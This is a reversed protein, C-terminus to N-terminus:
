FKRRYVYLQSDPSCNLGDSTNGVLTFMDQYPLFQVGGELYAPQIIAFESQRIWQTALDDNWYSLRALTISDGGLMYNWHEDLEQPHIQLGPAYLLVAVANGGEWYVQSGPPVVQSLYKGAQRYAQIVNGTCAWQTFGGGLAISPSLGWGALLFVCASIAGFSAVQYVSKRKWLLRIAFGTLLILAGIILGALLPLFWRSTDYPIGFRSNILEWLPVQGPLIRGTRFFSLIEPVRLATLFGSTSDAGGYGIATSILVILLSLIIQRAVALNKQLNSFVAITFLLGTYSFFALYPNFTFANYNNGESFGLGAWAHIGLLSFFLVGMFLGSRYHREDKWVKRAPWLLFGIISGVLAIFHYRFGELLSYLRASWEPNFNLAPISGQPLRWANLFPTLSAPLWPAWMGMIGPWFVAHGVVLTLTGAMTSIWAQRRGFQWFIYVLLIPLVPAMNQRTLIILGALVASMSSQWPTRGKGLAFFLSWMLLCSVLGQSIGFSYFRIVAPNLVVAWVAAAAWRPGALRWAAAWLGVLGLVGIFLAFIRGTLLGPSFWVQIWGPILYSLPAYLTRPGFAQFPNYEGTAFLYGKYLFLGEDITSRQTIAFQISVVLYVLVGALALIYALSLRSGWTRIMGVIRKPNPQM